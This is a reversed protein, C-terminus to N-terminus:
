VLVEVVFRRGIGKYLSPNPRIARHARMAAAHIANGLHAAFASSNAGVLAVLAALWEGHLNAGYELGAVDGHAM